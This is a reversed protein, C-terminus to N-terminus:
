IHGGIETIAKDLMYFYDGPWTGDEHQPLLESFSLKKAPSASTLQTIQSSVTSSNLAIFAIPGKVVDIAEAMVAPSVDDGEEVAQSFAEPTVNTYGADELLYDLLPETAFVTKGKTQTSLEMLASKRLSLKTEFESLLSSLESSDSPQLEAIAQSIATAVKGSQDLDFFVHENRMMDTGSVKYANVLVAPTSDAEVMTTIFDDYGGGNMVVIDANAILLQDASSAYFSHPDQSSRGILATVTATKGAVLNAVSGWVNTSSVIKIPGNGATWLMPAQASCGTLSLTIIALACFVLSKKKM